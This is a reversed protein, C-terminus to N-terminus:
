RPALMSCRAAAADIATPAFDLSYRDTFRRGAGDRSQIRLSDASRMADILAREQAPGISWAWQGRVVLQFPKRGVIAIVSAGGRPVRSLRAHFQGWRTHDGTFTFGALARAKGAVPADLAFSEADCQDGRLVAAWRGGSAIVSGESALASVAFSAAFLFAFLAIAVRM